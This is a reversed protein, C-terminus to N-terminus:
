LKLKPIWKPVNIKYKKFQDGFIKGLEKEEYTAMRDMMVFILLFAILSIISLILIVFALYILLIGFYMPNRSRAFVGHTILLDNNYTEARIVIGSAKILIYAIILIILFVSIRFIDLPFFGFRISWRFIFEDLIWSLTFSIIFFIQVLHSKPYEPGIGCGTESKM